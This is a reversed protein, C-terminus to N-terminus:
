TQTFLELTDLAQNINEFVRAGTRQLSGAKSPNPSIGIPHVDINIGHSELLAVADLVSIIGKYSDEFVYVNSDALDSWVADAQNNLTLKVANRISAPLDIGLAHQLATLAHIAAPKNFNTRPQHLEHEFWIAAGSTVMPLEEIGLLQAGLNAEPSDFYGDPPTAPRNSFIVAHHQAAAQWSLLHQIHERDILATDMELLYSHSDQTAPLNYLEAFLESGLNFEQMIQHLISKDANEANELLSHLTTKQHTALGDIHLDLAAQLFQLTTRPNTSTHDITRAFAIFDPASLNHPAGATLPLARPLSLPYGNKWAKHLMLATCAAAVHWECTIGAAEFEAIAVTSLNTNQYGLHRASITLTDILAQHYGISNILVGDMDLLLITKM